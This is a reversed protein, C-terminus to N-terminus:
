RERERVQDDLLIGLAKRGRHLRSLVTGKPTEM